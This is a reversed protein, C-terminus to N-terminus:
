LTKELDALLQAVTKKSVPDVVEPGIEVLPMLVFTRERMRLHPITLEPDDEVRDGYLLIDMDCTRPGWRQEKSRDRGLQAEIGHLAVLLEHPELTTEIMAAGNLYADQGEPGVPDTEIFASVRRVDIDAHADMLLIAQDLTARRDGLNSGLAIYATVTM